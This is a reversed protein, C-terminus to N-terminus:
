SGRYTSYGFPNLLLPVHYKRSIDTIAFEVQVMPFFCESQNRRFYEGTEFVLRFHGKEPSVSFAIRGDPNTTAIEILDWKEGSKRTLEVQVGAAPHGRSTDLIHTSIM